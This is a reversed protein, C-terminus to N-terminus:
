DGANSGGYAVAANAQESQLKNARVASREGTTLPPTTMPVGRLPAPVSPSRAAELWAEVMLIAWLVGSRDRKGSLHEQWCAPCNAVVAEILVQLIFFREM